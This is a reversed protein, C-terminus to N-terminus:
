TLEVIILPRVDKNGLDQRPKPLSAVQIERYSRHRSRDFLGRQRDFEGVLQQVSAFASSPSGSFACWCAIHLALQVDCSRGAHNSRLTVLFLLTGPGYSSHFWVRWCERTVTEIGVIRTSPQRADSPVGLVTAIEEQLVASIM